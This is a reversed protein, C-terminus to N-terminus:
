FAVFHGVPIHYLNKQNAQKVGQDMWAQFIIHIQQQNNWAIVDYFIGTM